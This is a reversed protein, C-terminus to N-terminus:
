GGVGGYGQSVGEGSLMTYQRVSEPFPSWKQRKSPVLYPLAEPGCAEEMALGMMGRKGRGLGVHVAEELVIPVGVGRAVVVALHTARTSIEKDGTNGQPCSEPQLYLSLSPRQPTHNADGADQPHNGWFFLRTVLRTDLGRPRKRDEKGGGWKRVYVCWTDMGMRERDEGEGWGCTPRLSPPPPWFGIEGSGFGWGGFFLISVQLAHPLGPVSAWRLHTASRVPRQLLVAMWLSPLVSSGGLYLLDPVFRSVPTKKGM